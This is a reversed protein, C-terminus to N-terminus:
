WRKISRSLDGINLLTFWFYICAFGSSFAVIPDGLPATGSGYVFMSLMCSIVVSGFVRLAPSWRWSGNIKVGAIHILAGILLPISWYEAQFGTVWEGYVDPSMMITDTSLAFFTFYASGWAQIFAIMLQHHGYERVNKSASSNM